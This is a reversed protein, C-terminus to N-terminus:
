VAERALSLLERGDVKLLKAIELVRGQSIVDRRFAEITREALDGELEHDNADVADAEYNRLGILNLYRDAVPKQSLISELSAQNRIWGLNRLRYAAAQYSVRFHNAVRAVDKFVLEQSGPKSRDETRIALSPDSETVPDYVWSQTRSSGGKDLARLLSEVGEAPMLFVAAFVNARVERLQDRNQVSSVHLPQSDCERDLLVHAYEHAYSFRKRAVCHDVNVLVALGFEPHKLFVGSVEDQFKAGTAWVEQTSLVEAIDVVPAHDLGLRNRESEAVREGQEVADAKKQPLPLEYAPPGSRSKFGMLRELAVAERCLTAARSVQPLAEPSLESGTGLRFTAALAGPQSPGDDAFFREIPVDYLDALKALELSSVARQGAEIQVLATRPIGVAQASDAQTAGSHERAVKLRQALTTQDLPM